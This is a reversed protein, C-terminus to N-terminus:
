KGVETSENNYTFSIGQLKFDSYAQRIQFTPAIYSSFQENATVYFRIDQSVGVGDWPEDGWGFLGWETGGTDGYVPINLGSNSFDTEVTVYAVSFNNNKFLMLGESFQKTSAPNEGFHEEWQITCTIGPLITAAAVTFALEDQVTLEPGSISVVRSYLEATQYLLDGEVIGNSSNVTIVKDDVDIINLTFSEDVFNTFDGNDREYSVTLHDQDARCIYMIDQIKNIYGFQLNRSWTTWCNTVYNFCHQVDSYTLDVSPVALIYKKDSEYGIAFSAQQLAEMNSATLNDFIDQLPLSKGNVGSDSIAVVGQNSFMWVESNLNVLTDPGIIFTTKDFSNVTLGQPTYGSVQYIGDTKAVYAYTSSSSTVRYIPSSSDGVPYYSKAPVGQFIGSSSVYMLNPYINPDSALDNLPPAYSDQHASATVTFGGSGPYDAELIINGPLDDSGSLYLAHVHVTEDYNIARVLSLATDAINQSPTGDTFVKFVGMALDEAAAGTYNGVNTATITIVDAVQLGVTGAALISFEVSDPQTCNGFLVFDRFATLDWCSPPPDHAALAGEQDTGTYLSAGRLSDLVSDVITVQRATFDTPTLEAEYVLQFQNLPPITISSTTASRYLQVFTLSDQCNKPITGTVSINTDSIWNNLVTAVSSPSGLLTTKNGNIGTDVRGFVMQYAVQSGAYTNATSNFASSTALTSIAILPPSSFTLSSAVGTIFARASMQLTYPGAGAITAITTGAPIGTGAIVTAHVPDVIGSVLGAVSTVNTVTFSGATTNGTVTGTSIVALPTIETITTGAPVVSNVGGVLSTAGVTVQPDTPTGTLEVFVLAMAAGNGFLANAVQDATSVGSEIQVSIANGVVNVDEAGAVGGATYQVTIANGATGRITATYTIDQIAVEATNQGGTIFQGETIGALNTLDTFGGFVNTADLITAGLLINGPNNTLFGTPLNLNTAQLDLAKQVGAHIMESGNASALSLVGEQTTLYLNQDIIYFRSKAFLSNPPIIGSNIGPLATWVGALLYYLNGLDTLIIQTYEGEVYFDILRIIASDDPTDGAVLSKFGRRCEAINRYRSEVNDAIRCAGDPAGDLESPATYLGSFKLTIDQSM